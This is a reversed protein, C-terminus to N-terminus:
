LQHVSSSPSLASHLGATRESSQWEDKGSQLGDPKPGAGLGTQLYSVSGQRM